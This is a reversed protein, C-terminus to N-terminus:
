FTEDACWTNNEQAIPPTCLKKINERTQKVEGCTDNYSKPLPYGDRGCPYGRSRLAKVVDNPYFFIYLMGEEDRGEYKGVEVTKTKYPKYVLVEKGNKIIPKGNSDLLYDADEQWKITVKIGPHWKRPLYVCCDEGGINQSDVHSIGGEGNVIISVISKDTNNVGLYSTGELEEAQKSSAGCATLSLMFTLMCAQLLCYFIKVVTSHKRKEPPPLDYDYHLNNGTGDFFIGVFVDGTCSPQNDVPLACVLSKKRAIYEAASLKRVGNAPFPNPFITAM